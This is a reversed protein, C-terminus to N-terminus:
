YQHWQVESIILVISFHAGFNRSLYRTAGFLTALNVHLHTEVSNIGNSCSSFTGTNIASSATFANCIHCLTFHSRHQQYQTSENHCTRQSACFSTEMFTHTLESYSTAWLVGISLLMTVDNPPTRPWCHNLYHRTAQETGVKVQVFSSM